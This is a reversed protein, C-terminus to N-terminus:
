ECTMVLEDMVGECLSAVASVVRMAAVSVSLVRIVACRMPSEVATKGVLMVAATVALPVVHAALTGTLTCEFGTSEFTPMAGAVSPVGLAVGTSACLSPSAVPM